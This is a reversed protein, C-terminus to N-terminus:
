HYTLILLFDGDKANECVQVVVGDISGPIMPVEGDGLGSCKHRMVAVLTKSSAKIVSDPLAGLALADFTDSLAADTKTLVRKFGWM